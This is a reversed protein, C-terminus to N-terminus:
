LQTLSSPMPSAMVRAIILWSVFCPCRGHDEDETGSPGHGAGHDPEGRLCGPAAHSNPRWDPRIGSSHRPLQESHIRHPTTDHLSQLPFLVWGPFCCPLCVLVFLNHIKFSKSKNRNRTRVESLVQFPCTPSTLSMFVLDPKKPRNPFLQQKGKKQPAKPLWCEIRKWMTSFTENSHMPKPHIM